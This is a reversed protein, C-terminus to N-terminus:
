NSIETLKLFFFCSERITLYFLYRSSFLTFSLVHGGQPFHCCALTFWVLDICLGQVSCMKSNERHVEKGERCVNDVCVSDHSCLDNLLVLESVYPGSMIM